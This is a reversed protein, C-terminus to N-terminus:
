GGAPTVISMNMVDGVERYKIEIDVIPRGGTRPNEWTVIYKYPDDGLRPSNIVIPYPHGTLCNIVIPYPYGTLCNIVIPYPYGTLCNLVIPYPYGTLCNIM